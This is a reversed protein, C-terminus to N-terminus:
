LTETKSWLHGWIVKSNWPFACSSEEQWACEGILYSIEALQRSINHRLLKLTQGGTMPTRLFFESPCFNRPTPLLDAGVHTPVFRLSIEAPIGGWNASFTM